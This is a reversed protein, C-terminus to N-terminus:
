VCTNLNKIYLPLALFVYIFSNFVTLEKLPHSNETKHHVCISNLNLELPSVDSIYYRKGKFYIFLQAPPATWTTFCRGPLHLVRLEFGVVLFFNKLFHIVLVLFQVWFLVEISWFLSFQNVMHSGDLFMFAKQPVCAYLILQCKFADDNSFSLVVLSLM